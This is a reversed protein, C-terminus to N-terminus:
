RQLQVREKAAQLQCLLQALPEWAKRVEQMYSPEDVRRMKGRFFNLCKRCKEHVKDKISDVESIAKNILSNLEDIKRFRHILAHSILGDLSEKLGACAKEKALKQSIEDLKKLQQCGELAMSARQKEDVEQARSFLDSLFGPHSLTLNKVEVARFQGQDPIEIKERYLGASAPEVANFYRVVLNAAQQKSEELKLLIQTTNGNKISVFYAMSPRLEAIGAENAPSLNILFSLVLDTIDKPLINTQTLALHVQPAIEFSRQALLCVLFPMCDVNVGEAMLGRAIKEKLIPFSYVNTNRQTLAPSSNQIKLRHEILPLLQHCIGDINIRIVVAQHGYLVRPPYDKNKKPIDETIDTVNLGPLRDNLALLKEIAEDGSITLSFVCFQEGITSYVGFRCGNHEEKIGAIELISEELCDTNVYDFNYQKSLETLKSYLKPRQSLM